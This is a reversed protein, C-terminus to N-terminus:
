LTAGTPLLVGLALVQPGESLPGVECRAGGEIVLVRGPDPELDVGPLPGASVGAWAEGPLLVGLLLAAPAVDPAYDHWALAEAILDALQLAGGQERILLHLWAVSLPSGASESRQRAAKGWAWLLSELAAALDAALQAALQAGPSGLPRGPRPRWTTLALPPAERQLRALAVGLAEVRAPPASPALYFPARM